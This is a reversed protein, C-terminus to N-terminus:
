PLQRWLRGDLRYPIPEGVRVLAFDPHTPNLLYNYELPVVSSPVRTAVERGERVWASGLERSADAAPVSQWDPPLATGFHHSILSAPLDAYVAVYEHVDPEEGLGVRMELTALALSESAYAMRTGRYHWRGPRRVTGEGSYASEAYRTRCIRWVRM